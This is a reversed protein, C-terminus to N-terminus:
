YLKRATFRGKPGSKPWNGPNLKEVGKEFTKKAPIRAYGPGHCVGSGPGLVDLYVVSGPLGLNRAHM